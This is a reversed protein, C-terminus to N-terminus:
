QRKKVNKLLITIVLTIVGTMVITGGPKLDLYYSLFLGAVVFLVSFMISFWVTKKYSKAIQMSVAVPLVMMSSVVLAGVVRASVSITVATLLTFVFSVIKVPIGALKASEEDFATYFLAKFLVIFLSLVIISLGIVFYLEFSSIAVLSGFLFSNFNASKVFGSFIAALGIGVSMFVATSIEGYKPISKRVKEIGLAALISFIVASFVPNIGFVLGAAVGALSVHSLTDGITSLRKLVVIIGICPTTIAIVIGALFANRMFEYQFIDLM